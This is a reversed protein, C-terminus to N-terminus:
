MLARNMTLIPLLIAIAILLVFLGVALILVLELVSLGRTILRDWQQQYRDAAHDLLVDLHGSAEGAQVWAPLAANLPEIGRLAEALSRGQRVQEAGEATRASVWASG